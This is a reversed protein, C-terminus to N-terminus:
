GRLSVGDCPPGAGPAAPREAPATRDSRGIHRYRWFVRAEATIAALYTAITLLMPLAYGDLGASLWGASADILEGGWHNSAAWGVNWALMASANVAARWPVPTIEMVLNRWLPTGLNMLASRLVYAAIAVPLSTALALVLFFPISLAQTAITARVLGLRPVVRTTGLAGLTMTACAAAMVVGLVPKSLAFRDTFYLNIFPISLGAGIGILLYPLALPVWLHWHDRRLIALLEGPRRAEGSGAVREPLRRYCALAALSAAAGALLALRLAETPPTAGAELAGALGCAVLLGGTQMLAHVAFDAQFLATRDRPSAVSVLFPAAVVTHLTYAAGSLASWCLLPPLSASLALGAIAAVNLACALSLSRRPGLREYAWASPITAAVVGVAAAANVYGADAVSFGGLSLVYLNQLAWLFAHGIELLAAGALFARAPAPFSRYRDLAARMAALTGAPLAQDRRRAHGIM